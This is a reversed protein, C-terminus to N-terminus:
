QRASHRCLMECWPLRRGHWNRIIEVDLRQNRAESTGKCPRLLFSKTACGFVGQRADGTQTLTDGKANKCSQLSSEEVRGVIPTRRPIDGPLRAGALERFQHRDSSVITPSTTHDPRMASVGVDRLEQM